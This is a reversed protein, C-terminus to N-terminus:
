HQESHREDSSQHHAQAENNESENHHMDKMCQKMIAQMVPDNTDMKSHDMNKMAACDPKEADNMHEKPNHAQVSFAVGLAALAIIPTFRKSKM